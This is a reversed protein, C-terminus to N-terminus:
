GYSECGFRLRNAVCELTSAEWADKWIRDLGKRYAIQDQWETWLVNYHEYDTGVKPREPIELEAM